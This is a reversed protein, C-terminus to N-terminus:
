AGAWPANLSSATQRRVNTQRDRVEPRLRSCLPRYTSWFQCMHLGRWVQSPCWRWPRLDLDGPRKPKNYQCALM